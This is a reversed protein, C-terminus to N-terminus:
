QGQTTSHYLPIIAAQDQCLIREAQIYLAQRAAPDSLTAAQEVLRDFEASSFHGWNNESRSHFVAKLSNDPDNYDAGWGLRYIAPADRGLLDLYAQWNDVVEVKVNVNLNERWMAVIANAIEEHGGSKNTSLAVAPFGQGNPYGAKALLSRANAPNFPLGVQGYLNRGLTEPPTFTTAPQRNKGASKSALDAIARRDVAAAFAQRVLRDDFPKKNVNFGYYYIDPVANKDLPLWPISRAMKEIPVVVVGPLPTNAPRPTDTPPRTPTVSPAPTASPASTNTPAPTLTAPPISTNAPALTPQIVAVATPTTVRPGGGGRSVAVVILVVLALAVIGAGVLLLPPVATRPAPQPKPKPETPTKFPQTVAIPPPVPQPVTVPQTAPQGLAQELAGVFERCSAYREAPSKIMVRHLVAEVAPPLDPCCATVSPPPEHVQKFLIATTTAADFPVCGTLMEFAIIGLAYQDTRADIDKGQIQEPAMYHPTGISVGATTLRSEQAAKVIGFDTLVAQGREDFMVNAPKVDRHILGKSHAYDLADALQRLIPLTEAPRLRGRQGILHTLSQGPLFAMVFYYNGGDQGVDHVDVINPHRLQAVARAERLFRDVFTQQWVLHPALVKIAVTRNLFPDHAKYVAGMGGRGIEQIIQYKGLSPYSSSM